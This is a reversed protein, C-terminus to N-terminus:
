QRIHIIIRCFKMVLSIHLLFFLLFVKKAIVKDMQKPSIKEELVEKMYKKIEDNRRDQDIMVYAYVKKGFIIIEIVKVYIISENYKIAFKSTDLGDRYKDFLYKYVTRNSVM